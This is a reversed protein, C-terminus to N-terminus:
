AGERKCLRRLQARLKPGKFYKTASHRWTGWNEEKVDIVAETGNKKFDNALAPDPRSIVDFPDYVNVWDGKLKSPFGNKCSWNLKDQVEDLGLPSGLTMFGEIEKCDMVDTLVDYGIFTGQSHGVLVHRTGPAVKAFDDLVRRRIIDRIGNTNFLYDHAERVFHEMMREKIFWPIPIREYGDTSEDVPADKLAQNGDALKLMLSAEWGPKVDQKVAADLEEARNAAAEYDSAAIPKDYFLDAWYVFSATVGVAGLDFGPDGVVPASLANLWIRELEKPAPKNALGHIFTVHVQQSM